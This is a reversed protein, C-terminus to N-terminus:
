PKWCNHSSSVSRKNEIYNAILQLVKMFEMIINTCSSLLFGIVFFYKDILSAQCHIPSKSNLLLEDVYFDKSNGSQNNVYLFYLLILSVFFFFLLNSQTITLHEALSIFSYVICQCYNFLFTICFKFTFVNLLIAHLRLTNLQLNSVGVLLLQM